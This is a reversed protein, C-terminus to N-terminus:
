GKKLCLMRLFAQKLNKNQQILIFSHVTPFVPAALLVIMIILNTDKLFSSTTGIFLIVLHFIFLSLFCLMVITAKVHAKTSVDRPATVHQGMMKTHRRLSLILLLCSFLSINFPILTWLLSLRHFVYFEREKRRVNETYNAILRMKLLGSYINFKQIVLMTNFFFFVVSGLLVCAVVQSIRRKLWLFVPHSFVAIKLCYFVSLCTSLSINLYNSLTWSTERIESFTMGFYFDPYFVLTIADFIITCQQMIRSFALNMIIFDTLSIKSRKIWHICNILGLFANGWIGLIFQSLAVCLFFIQFSSLM